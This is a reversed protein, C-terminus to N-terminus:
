AGTATRPQDATATQVIVVGAVVLVLAAMVRLDITEGLVVAALALGWIPVLNVFISTRATGITAIGKFWLGFGVVTGFIGMYLVDLGVLGASFTGPRGTAVAFVALLIGGIIVSYGTAVFIPIEGKTNRLFVSYIAWSIPAIIFGIDGSNLGAGDVLADGFLVGVGAFSLVVGIIQRAPPLRWALLADFLIAWAPMTAVILVGRTATSRELGIFFGINYIFIGFAAAAAVLWLARRSPLVWTRSVTFVLVFAMGAILFRQAAVVVPDTTDVALSAVIFVVSWMVTAAVNGAYIGWPASRPSGDVASM